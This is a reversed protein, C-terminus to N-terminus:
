QAWIASLLCWVQLLALLFPMARIAGIGRRQVATVVVVAFVALYFIQHFLDGQAANAAALPTGSRPPIFPQFGVFVLIALAFYAISALAIRELRPPADFSLAFSENAMSWPM